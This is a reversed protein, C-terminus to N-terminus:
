FIFLASQHNEMCAKKSVSTSSLAASSAESPTYDSENDSYIGMGYMFSDTELTSM